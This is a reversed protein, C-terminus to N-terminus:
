LTRKEDSSPGSQILDLLILLEDVLRTSSACLLPRACTRALLLQLLLAAVSRQAHWAMCSREVLTERGRGWVEGQGGWSVTM